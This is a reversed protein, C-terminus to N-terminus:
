ILGYTKKQTDTMRWQLYEDLVKLTKQISEVSFNVSINEDWDTLTELDVPWDGIYVDVGLVGGEQIDGLSFRVFFMRYIQCECFFDQGNDLSHSIFGYANEGFYNKVIRILFDDNERWDSSLM